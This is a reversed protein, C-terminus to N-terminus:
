DWNSIKVERQGRDVFAIPHKRLYARKKCTQLAALSMKVAIKLMLIEKQFM